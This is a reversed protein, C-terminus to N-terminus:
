NLLQFVDLRPVLDCVLDLARPVTLGPRENMNLPRNVKWDFCRILAALVTRRAHGTVLVLAKVHQRTLKVEQDKDELRDLLIDLFNVMDHDAASSSNEEEMKKRLRDRETILNELLSDFREFTDEVRKRCGWLDVKKCLWIFDLVNFEGFIQTVERVLSRVEDAGAESNQALVLLVRRLEENRIHVYKSLARNGLLETMSLKNIFKWYPGYPAFAFASNYTLRNIASSDLRMAFNLEHTMLLEKAIEASSVVVRDVSGLRLKLLPGYHQSLQHFSRHILPGLLHLHGVVPIALPSPPLSTKKRRTILDIIQFLMLPLTILTAIISIIEEQSVFSM